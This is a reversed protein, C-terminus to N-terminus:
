FEDLMAGHVTHVVRASLHAPLANYDGEDIALYSHEEDEIVHQDYFSHLSRREAIELAEFYSHPPFTCVASYAM